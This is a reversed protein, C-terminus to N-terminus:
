VFSFIVKKIYKDKLVTKLQTTFSEQSEYLLNNKEAEGEGMEWKGIEDCIQGTIVCLQNGAGFIM